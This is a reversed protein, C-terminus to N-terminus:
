EKNEAIANFHKEFEKERRLVKDFTVICFEAAYRADDDDYIANYLEELGEQMIQVRTKGSTTSRSRMSTSTDLCLCVPVRPDPNDLLDKKRIIDSAM